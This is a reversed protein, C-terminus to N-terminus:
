LHAYRNEVCKRINEEFIERSFSKAHERIATKDWKLAGFELIAKKLSEVTQEQFFLGTKGPIVTELAGGEAFAIVPRGCAMSELPTIGFDETQPFVLAMAKRYVESLEDDPIHGLFTVFRGGIKKLRKEEKGTGVVVLPLKMDNFTEVLLDFRKYPTLRGVALFYQGEKQALEFREIDVPPYIVNSDRRYYKQIRKQVHTSNAIFSDVRDAALRDWMRLEHLHRKATGKLLGPIGYQDIYEHCNDWVYRMPSHCYCIHLTKPKTIIGKSCSHCSSIVIDFKSLDFQEFAYPMMPLYMFHKKTAFPMKQIFSTIVERDWFEPFAKKDYIATYIPAHPFVNAIAGIVREAGGRAILWDCVIAVRPKM